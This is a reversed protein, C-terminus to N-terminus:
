VTFNLLYQHVAQDFNDSTDNLFEVKIPLVYIDINNDILFAHHLALRTADKETTLIVKNQDQIKIYTNALVSIEHASFFHHDEFSFATVENIQTYLYELLYDTSAIATVLIAQNFEELTIRSGNFMHYPREYCYKSFYIEQYVEPEIESTISSIEANDLHSPCKSVIIIDARSSAQPWERLRGTPMLFDKYYPKSYDTILINLGPTVSRHQYSDDLILAQINPKESLLYPIGLSRSESVAIHIDPYKLSFQKPEDGVILASANQTVMRYGKSKRNYGRSMVGIELYPKLLEILYEVHPTKGSGGIALNGIGIVPINFEISRLLNSRYLLDRMLVGLGFLITLPFLLARFIYARVM